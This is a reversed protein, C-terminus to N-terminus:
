YLFTVLVRRYFRKKFMNKGLENIQYTTTKTTCLQFQYAWLLFVLQMYTCHWELSRSIFDSISKKKKKKKHLAMQLSWILLSSPTKRKRRNALFQQECPLVTDTYICYVKNSIALTLLSPILLCTNNTVFMAAKDCIDTDSLFPETPLMQVSKSCWHCKVGQTPSTQTCKTLYIYITVTERFLNIKCAQPIGMTIKLHIIVTYNNNAQHFETEIHIHFWAFAGKTQRCHNFCSIALIINQQPILNYQEKEQKERKRRKRNYCGCM